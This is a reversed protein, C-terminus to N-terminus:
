LAFDEVGRVELLTSQPNDKLTKLDGELKSTARQVEWPHFEPNLVADALIELAEPLNVNAADIVYSMQQQFLMMYQQLMSRPTMYM